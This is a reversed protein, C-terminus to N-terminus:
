VACVWSERLMREDIMIINEFRFFLCVDLVFVSNNDTSVALRVVTCHIACCYHPVPTSSSNINIAVIM